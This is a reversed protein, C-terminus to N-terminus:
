PLLFCVNGYSRALGTLLLLLNKVLVTPTFRGRSCRNEKGGSKINKKGYCDSQHLCIRNLPIRNDHLYVDTNEKIHAQGTVEKIDSIQM